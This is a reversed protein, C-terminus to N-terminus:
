KKAKAKLDEIVKSSVWYIDSKGREGATFFLYKGDPSVHPTGADMGLEIRQPQSWNGDALRFSVLLEAKFEKGPLRSGFILYSEDPAVYPYMRQTEGDIPAPLKELKTYKGDVLRMAGIRETGPGASIDTTYITGSKTTTVFMTQAPNFPAGPNKPESWSAGIRDVYLINMPPGPQGEIPDGSSFYMRQGDATVLPEFYFHGKAFAVGEPKTWIGDKLKSFMISAVKSTSDRRTFYFESGDPNFSCSYEHAATSVVGPAFKEPTTGPVKQGLYPGKLIPFSTDQALSSASWVALFCATLVIRKM